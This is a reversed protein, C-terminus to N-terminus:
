DKHLQVALGAAQMCWDYTSQSATRDSERLPAKYWIEWDVAAGLTSLWRDASLGVFMSTGQM